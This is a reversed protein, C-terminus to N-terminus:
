RFGQGNSIQLPVIQSGVIGFSRAAEQVLGRIARWRAVLQVTSDKVSLGKRDRSWGALDVWLPM